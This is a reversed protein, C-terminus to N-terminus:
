EYIKKIQNEHKEVHEFFGKLYMTASCPNGNVTIVRHDDDVNEFIVLFVYLLSCLLNVLVDFDCSQYRATDVVVDNYETRKLDTKTIFSELTIEFSLGHVVQKHSM